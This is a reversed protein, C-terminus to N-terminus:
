CMPIDEILNSYVRFYRRCKLSRYCPTRVSMHKATMKTM